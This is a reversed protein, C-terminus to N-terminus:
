CIHIEISTLTRPFRVDQLVKSRNEGETAKASAMQDKIGVLQGNAYEM